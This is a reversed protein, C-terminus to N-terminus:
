EVRHLTLLLSATDLQLRDIPRDPDFGTIERLRLLRYSLTKPHVGLREAANSVVGCGAHARLADLLKKQFAPPHQLLPGLVREVFAKGETPGAAELFRYVGLEDPRVICSPTAV